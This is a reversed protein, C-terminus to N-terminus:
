RALRGSYLEARSAGADPNEDDQAREEILDDAEATHFSVVYWDEAPDIVPRHWTHPPISLWRDSLPADPRSTLRHSQWRTGNWIQLDASGIVSMVRQHSNPHREAGTTLGARLAFVWSSRLGQPLDDYIDIPLAQWAIRLDSDGSLRQRMEHLATQIDDRGLARSVASDLAQLIQQETM